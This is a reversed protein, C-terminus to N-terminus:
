TTTNYQKCAEWAEESNALVECDCYGGNETLWELTETEPLGESHIHAITLRRTHDCGDIPLREDLMDFLAKFQTNSLPLAEAADEMAKLKAERLLKKRQQKDLRAM